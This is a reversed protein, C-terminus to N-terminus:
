AAREAAVAREAAAAAAAREAAAAAEGREASVREAALQADALEGTATTLARLELKVEAADAELAQKAPRLVNAHALLDEISECSYYGIMSALFARAAEDHRANPDAKYAARTKSELQKKTMHRLAAVTHDLAMTTAREAAKDYNTM